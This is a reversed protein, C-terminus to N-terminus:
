AVLRKNIETSLGREFRMVLIENGMNLDSVYKSLEMFRNHYEEVTMKESIKFSDFEAWMRSHIHEPVFTNRLLMNFNLWPIYAEGTEKYDERLTVKDKSWWLGAKGKLYFATQDVQMKELCNLLEFINDLERYWDGLLSPEGLGDYM